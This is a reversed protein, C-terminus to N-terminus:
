EWSKQKKNKKHGPFSINIFLEVDNFCFSWESNEPDLPIHEPWSMKDNNHIKQLIRWAFDHEEEVSGLNTDEFVCLLPTYIRHEQPLSKTRDTLETIARTISLIIDGKPIFAFLISRLKWAHKGFLCPFDKKSITNSIECFAKVAWEDLINKNVSSEIDKQSLLSTMELVMVWWYITFYIAITDDYKVKTLM